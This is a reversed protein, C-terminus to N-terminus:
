FFYTHKIKSQRIKGREKIRHFKVVKKLFKASQVYLIKLCKTPPNFKPCSAKKFKIGKFYIKSFKMEFGFKQLMKM